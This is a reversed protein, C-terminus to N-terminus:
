QLQEKENEKTRGRKGGENENDATSIMAIENERASRLVVEETNQDFM